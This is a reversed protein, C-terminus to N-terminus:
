EIIFEKPVDYCYCNNEFLANIIKEPDDMNIDDRRIFHSWKYLPQPIYDNGEGLSYGGTAKYQGTGETCERLM